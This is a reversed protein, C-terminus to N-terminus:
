MRLARMASRQAAIASAAQAITLPIRQHVRVRSPRVGPAAFSPVFGATALETIM